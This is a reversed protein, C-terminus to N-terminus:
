LTMQLTVIIIALYFYITYSEGNSNKNPGNCFKSKKPNQKRVIELIVFFTM